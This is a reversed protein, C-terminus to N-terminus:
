RERRVEEDVSPQSVSGHLAQDRALAEEAEATAKDDERGGIAIEAFMLGAMGGVFVGTVIGAPLWFLGNQHGVVQDIILVAVVAAVAGIAAGLVGCNLHHRHMAGIV